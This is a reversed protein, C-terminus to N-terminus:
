RFYRGDHFGLDNEEYPKGSILRDLSRIISVPNFSIGFPNVDVKYKYHHLKQGINESFCSGILVIQDQHQIRSSSPSPLVPVITRYTQDNTASMSMISRGNKGQFLDPSQAIIRALRNLAPTSLARQVLSSTPQRLMMFASTSELRMLMLLMIPLSLSVFSKISPSSPYYSM